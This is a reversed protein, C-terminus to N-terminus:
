AIGLRLHSVATTSGTETTTSAAVIGNVFIIGGAPIGPAEVPDSTTMKYVLDPVTTGLSVAGASTADFLQIYTNAAAGNLAHVMTIGAKGTHLLTANGLSDSKLIASYGAM